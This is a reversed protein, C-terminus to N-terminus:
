RGTGAREVSTSTPIRFADGVKINHTTGKSYDKPDTFGRVLTVSGVSIVARDDQPEVRVITYAADQKGDNGFVITRGVLGAPLPTDTRVKVREDQPDSTDLSEVRGTYAPTEARLEFQRWSLRDGCLKAYEVDGDRSSVFGFTGALKLGGEVQLEGPHESSVLMDVRGTDLTVELATTMGASPDATVELLRVSEVFPTRDYPELVNVFLSELDEEGTRSQIAYHLWRPNGSKNQPPEGVATALEQLPTLSHIRLHPETGPLVRGRHQEVKWDLFFSEPPAAARRVQQLFSYGPKTRWARDLHEPAVDEGAFTGKDQPKLTLAPASLTGPPGHWSLRHVTSGRLRFLDVVYSREADVDVMVPTRRYTESDPYADDSVVDVFRVRGDPEFALLRGTYSYNQNRDGVIAVTHSACNRTWALDRPRGSAYEPYGLDPLMDVNHAYLGLNLRDTHGHGTNRGFYLWAARGADRQPAQLIALGYGGLFTSRLPPSQAAAINAIRAALAEPDPEFVSGHIGDTKGGRAQVLFRAFVEDGFLEFATQMTGARLGVCGWAGMAGSDGIPPTAADLCNWRTLSHFFQRYKPFDRFFDHKDYKAYAHLMRAGELFSLAWCSYGPAAENGLGDRDMMAVFVEPVHGGTRDYSPDNWRRKGVEPTFVWDLIEATKEPRDLAIATAIMARQCMGENGRIRGDRASKYFEMLLHDEVHRCVAASDAPVSLAHTRAKEQLFALLESDRSIADYVRDYAVSFETATGTEWIQGEIRGARSGGDSHSFKEDAFPKWDMDPYVDAIRSLLVGAKHAYRVDDTLCYAHALRSATQRLYRWLGWSTYYAVFDWRGTAADHYGYGDDVWAKHLPDNPDPHEVNFLLKPDGGGRQFFGHEDLASEYYAGFDNKPYVQGCQPCTIKWPLNVVDCRWPYNGYKLIKPGCSPCSSVRDNGALLQVHITRAVAQSPVLKWLADDSMSAAQEAARVAAKQEAAAWGLRGANAVANRRMEATVTQSCEKATAGSNAAM